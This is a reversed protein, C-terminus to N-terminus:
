KQQENIAQAASGHQRARISRLDVKRGAFGLVLHRNVISRLGVKTPAM